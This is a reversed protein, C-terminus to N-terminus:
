TREKTSGIKVRRRRPRDSEWPLDLVQMKGQCGYKFKARPAMQGMFCRRGSKTRSGTVLWQGCSDCVLIASPSTRWWAVLLDRHLRLARVAWDPADGVLDIRAAAPVARLVTGTESMARSAEALRFAEPESGTLKAPTVPRVPNSSAAM